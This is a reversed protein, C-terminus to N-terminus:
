AFLMAEPHIVKIEQNILTENVPSFTLIQDECTEGKSPISETSIIINLETREREEEIVNPFQQASM